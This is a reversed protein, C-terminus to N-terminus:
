RLVIAIGSLGGAAISNPALFLNLALVYLVTGGLVLLRDTIKLKEGYKGFVRM